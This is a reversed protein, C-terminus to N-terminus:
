AIAYAEKRTADQRKVRYFFDGAAYYVLGMKEQKFTGELQREAKFERNTGLETVTAGKRIIVDKM